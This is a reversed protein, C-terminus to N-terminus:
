RQRPSFMGPGPSHSAPEAGGSLEVKVEVRTITDLLVVFDKGADKVRYNKLVTDGSRVIFTEGDKALFLSSEKDTTDTVYGLFRFKSLDARSAEAALQEPTKEPIVPLIITPTPATVLVPKPKKPAPNDMRFIDRSVGPFREMRRALFLRLPDTSAAPAAIGTRVRSGAVAGRAYTLPVTRPKEATLIRYCVVLALVAVAGYLIRRQQEPSWNM